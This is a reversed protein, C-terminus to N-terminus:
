TRPAASGQRVDPLFGYPLLVEEGQLDGTVRIQNLIAAENDALRQEENRFSASLRRIPVFTQVLCAGQIGPGAEIPIGMSRCTLPRHDYLRCCGDAGLAPCPAAHFQGALRDIERDPWHDLFPTQGLAPFAAEMSATQALARQQIDEREGMPLQALGARLLHVDLVTIAFPGICCHSCGARCPLQGLLAASARRFWDDTHRQIEGQPPLPVPM